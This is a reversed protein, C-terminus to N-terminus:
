GLKICDAGGKIHRFILYSIIALSIYQSTSLYFLIGRELDGRFFELIFRAGGYLILYLKLNGKEINLFAGRYLLICTILLNIACEILQIPFLRIGCFPHGPYAYIVGIPFEESVIGYCCGTLFCGLRGFSHFFPIAPSIINLLRRCDINHICGAVFAGVLFGALAGYFVFGGKLLYLIDDVKFHKFVKLTQEMNVTLYMCKGFVFAFAAAYGFMIFGDNISAGSKKILFVSLLIAATFGAAACLGYKPMIYGCIMIMPTDNIITM